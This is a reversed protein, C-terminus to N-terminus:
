SMSFAGHAVGFGLWNDDSWGDQRSVKAAKSFFDL